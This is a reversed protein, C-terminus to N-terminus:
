GGWADPDAEVGFADVVCTSKKLNRVVSAVQRPTTWVVGELDGAVLEAKPWTVPNAAGTVLVLYGEISRQGLESLPLGRLLVRVTARVDTPVDPV